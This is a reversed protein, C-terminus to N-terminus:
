AAYKSWWGAALDATRYLLSKEELLADWANSQNLSPIIKFMILKMLVRLM